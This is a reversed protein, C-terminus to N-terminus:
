AEEMPYSVGSTIWGVTSTSKLNYLHAILKASEGRARRMRIDAVQAPKLKAAPSSVGYGNTPTVALGTRFAHKMNEAHTTWELNEIRNDSKIGNIHNVCPLRSPNPLFAEAVARHITLAARKGKHQPFVTPYLGWRTSQKLVKGTMANRFRGADSVEYAGEFGTVPRWIEANSMLAADM